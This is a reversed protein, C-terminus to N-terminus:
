HHGGGESGRCVCVCVCVGLFFVVLGKKVEELARGGEGYPGSLLPGVWEPRFRVVVDFGGVVGLERGGLRGLAVPALAAKWGEGGGDGFAMWHLLRTLSAAALQGMRSLV